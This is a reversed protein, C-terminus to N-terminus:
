EFDFFLVRTKASVKHYQKTIVVTVIVIFVYILCISKSKWLSKSGIHRGLQIFVSITFKKKKKIPKFGEETPRHKLHLRLSPRPGSREEGRGGRGGDNLSRTSGSEGEGPQVRDVLLLSPLLPFRTQLHYMASALVVHKWKM